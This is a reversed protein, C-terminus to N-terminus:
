TCNYKCHKKNILSMQQSQYKGYHYQKCKRCGYRKYQLKMNVNNTNVCLHRHDFQLSVNDKHGLTTIM